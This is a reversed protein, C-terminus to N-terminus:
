IEATLCNRMKVIHEEDTDKRTVDEDAGSTPEEADVSLGPNETSM